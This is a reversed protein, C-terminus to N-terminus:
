RAVQQEDDEWYPAVPLNMHTGTWPPMTVCIFMLPENSNNRCQFHVGAPITICYNPGVEVPQGDPAGAESRWLLGTGELFYWVEEIGQNKTARSIGKPPLTCHVVSCHGPIEVLKRIETLDVALNNYKEPLRVTQV